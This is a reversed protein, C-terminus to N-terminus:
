HREVRIEKILDAPIATEGEWEDVVIVFSGEYRIKKTWSGGSRGKHPFERTAEDRMIITISTM